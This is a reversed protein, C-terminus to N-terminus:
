DERAREEKALPVSKFKSLANHIHYLEVINLSPKDTHCGSFIGINMKCMVSPHIVDDLHHWSPFPLNLLWSKSMLELVVWVKVKSLRLWLSLIKEQKRFNWIWSCVLCNFFFSGGLISGGVVTFCQPAKNSSIKRKNSQERENSHTVFYHPFITLASYFNFNFCSKGSHHQRRGVGRGLLGTKSPKTTCLSGLEPGTNM